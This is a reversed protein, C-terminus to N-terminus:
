AALQSSGAAPPSGLCGDVKAREIRERRARALEAPEQSAEKRPMRTAAADLESRVHRTLRPGLMVPCPFWPEKSLETLRRLSVGLYAAAQRDSLYAPVVVAELHTERM